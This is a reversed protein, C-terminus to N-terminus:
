RVTRPDTAPAGDAYEWVVVPIRRVGWARAQEVTDMLLDLRQGRIKGGRDLVPVVRGDDYGPVSVLSGFALVSTDAAVLRGANTSVSHLTATMGDDFPWCSEPGPTYATVTMWMVHSPRVPRGDFWRTGAAAALAAQQELGKVVPTQDPVVAGVSPAVVPVVGRAAPASTPAPDIALLPVRQGGKVLVASWVTLLLAIAFVVWEAIRRSVLPGVQLAAAGM